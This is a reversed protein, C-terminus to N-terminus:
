EASQLAKEAKAKEEDQGAAGYVVVMASLVDKGPSGGAADRAQEVLAVARALDAEREAALAKKEKRPLSGADLTAQAAAADDVLIRALPLWADRAAPNLELAAEYATRAAADDGVQEQLSGFLLLSGSSGANEAKAATALRAKAEDPREAEVLLEVVRTLMASDLPREELLPDLFAVAADVDKTRAIASAVQVAVSAEFADLARWAAFWSTAADIRESRVASLIALQLLPVEVRPDSWGTETLVAHAKMAAEVKGWADDFRKSELDDRVVLRTAALLKVLGEALQEQTAGREAAASWTGVAAALGESTPAGDRVAQASLIRGKLVWVDVLDGTKKHVSARDIAERADDLAAKDGGEYADYAARAKKVQSNQAHAPAAILLGAFLLATPRM